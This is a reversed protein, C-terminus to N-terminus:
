PSCRRGYAPRAGRAVAESERMYEGYRTAGYWRTGACHYVSSNTNLWVRVDSSTPSASDRGRQPIGGPVRPRDLGAHETSEADLPRIAVVPHLEFGNPAMGRQGHLYDFFGIGDLEVLGYRPVARLARLAAAYDGEHGSGLACASDPIETVLTAEPHDPDALVVHLDGDSEPLIQRVIARVRYLTFEQPAMRRTAPYPPPPAPIQRLASISTTEAASWAVRGRDDDALIKVRWREVGCARAAHVPTRARSAQGKTTTTVALLLALTSWLTPCGRASSSQFGFGNRQRPESNRFALALSMTADRFERLFGIRTNPRRGVISSLAWRFTGTTDTNVTHREATVNDVM